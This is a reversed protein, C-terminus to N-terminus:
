PSAARSVASAHGAEADLDLIRGASPDRLADETECRGAGARCTVRYRTATPLTIELRGAGVHGAVRDPPAAFALKAHGSDARVDAQAVALGSADLTGSGVRARLPGRLAALVLAGSGMDADVTGALGSVTVRGSGGSVRVPMGTPVTVALRVSCGTGSTIGFDGEPCRPTLKLTDGLWSEEVAPKSWSWTMDARYGVAGDGRPTITVDSEGGVVELAGVTRGASGGTVTASQAGVDARVQWGAAAVVLVASLAAATYWALRPGSGAGAAPGNPGSM